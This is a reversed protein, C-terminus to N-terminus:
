WLANIHGDYVIFLLLGFDAGAYNFTIIHSFSSHHDPGHVAATATIAATGLTNQKRWATRRGGTVGPQRPEARGENKQPVIAEASKECNTTVIDAISDSNGGCRHSRVPYVM